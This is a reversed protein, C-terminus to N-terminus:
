SALVEDALSLLRFVSQLIRFQRFCVIHFGNLSFIPTIFNVLVSQCLSWSMKLSKNAKRLVMNNCSPFVSFFAICLKRQVSICLIIMIKKVIVLFKKTHAIYFESFSQFNRFIKFNRYSNQIECKISFLVNMVM